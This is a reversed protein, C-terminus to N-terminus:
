SRHPTVASRTWPRLSRRSCNKTSTKTRKLLGDIVDGILEEKAKMTDYLNNYLRNEKQLRKEEQTSFILAFLM